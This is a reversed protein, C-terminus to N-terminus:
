DGSQADRVGGIANLQMVPDWDNPAPRRSSWLCGSAIWRERLRRHAALRSDGRAGAADDYGFQTGCSPCIEDSPNGDRWAEERLAGFGCVPCVFGM